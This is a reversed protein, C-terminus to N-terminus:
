LPTLQYAAATETVMRIPAKEKKAGISAALLKITQVKQVIDGMEAVIMTFIGHEEPGIHGDAAIEILRDQMRGVDRYEKIFGLVAAELGKNEVPYAHIRGIPCIEACYRACLEPRGYTESMKLAVDPPVQSKGNEYDSLTRRGIHLAWAAAEQSMEATDRAAKYM